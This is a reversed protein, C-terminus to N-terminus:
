KASKPLYARSLIKQQYENLDRKYVKIFRLTFRCMWAGLAVVPIFFLARMSLVAAGEQRFFTYPLAIAPFILFPRSLQFLFRKLPLNFRARKSIIRIIIGTMFSFGVLALVIVLSVRTFPGPYIGFWYSVLFLNKM